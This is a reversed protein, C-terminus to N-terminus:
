LRSAQQWVSVAGRKGVKEGGLAVRSVDAVGSNVQQRVSVAGRRAVKVTLVQFCGSEAVRFRDDRKEEVDVFGEVIWRLKPASKMRSFDLDLSASGDRTEM